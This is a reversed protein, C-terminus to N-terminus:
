MEDDDLMIDAEEAARTFWEKRSSVKKLGFETSECETAIRM